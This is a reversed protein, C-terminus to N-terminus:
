TSIGMHALSLLCYAIHVNAATGIYWYTSPIHACVGIGIGILLLLIRPDIWVGRLLGYVIYLRRSSIAGDRITCTM